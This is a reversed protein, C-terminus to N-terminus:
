SFDFSTAIETGDSLTVRAEIERAEGRDACGLRHNKWALRSEERRDFILRGSQPVVARRSADTVFVEVHGRRRVVEIHHDGVMGLQGGHRPEHDTHAAIVSGLPLYRWFPLTALLLGAVVAAVCRAPTLRTTQRGAM